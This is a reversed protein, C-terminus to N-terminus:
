CICFLFANWYSAYRGSCHGDGPPPTDARLHPHHRGLLATTDAQSPPAQAPLPTDARPHRGLLPTHRGSVVGETSLIVSAQSFMVKGCSSNHVTVFRKGYGFKKVSDDITTICLFRSMTTSMHENYGFEKYPHFM